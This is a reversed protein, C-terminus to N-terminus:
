LTKWDYSIADVPLRDVESPDHLINALNVILSQQEVLGRFGFWVGPPVTLRCYRDVGIVEFKTKPDKENEFFVFQVQGDPVILNMTMRTHRKWAKIQNFRISSFYLEGFGYFGSDTNKLGHFVDGGSVTIKNLPTVLIQDLKSVGM